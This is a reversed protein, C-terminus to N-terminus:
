CRSERAARESRATEPYGSHCKSMPETAAALHRVDPLTELALIMGLLRDANHASMVDATCSLFKKQHERPSIPWLRSGPGKDVRMSFEGRRTKVAIDTYGVTGSYVKTDAIRYREIKKMVERVAPRQVAADTFSQLNLEGDAILAAVPYQASFKGELGTQPDDYMLPEDAGPPFGIRVAEIEDPKIGHAAMLDLLGGLGRHSCYCCPWRKYNMGPQVLDWPNGLRDAYQGANKEEARYLHQVSDEGDFITENATFGRRAMDEALIASRAAHGPQFSKSMTGFNRLIGGCEAAAIGWANRLVQESDARLRAAVATAAFIGITATSHWGSLYHSDGFIRGLKGAVEIGLAYALLVQKGSAGVQEGVALAVPLTSASAHGRLTALTDDFDLVHAAIANAFAAEAPTSRLGTGWVAAVPRAGIEAVHERALRAATESVGALACGLADMLATKAAAEVEAPLEKTRCVFRALRETLM